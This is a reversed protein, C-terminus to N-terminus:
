RLDFEIRKGLVTAVKALTHLTLSTDDPNLLRDVGARSTGLRRAMEAKSLSEEEMNKKLARAVTFKIASARCEELIGEESLFDELRTGVHKRKM